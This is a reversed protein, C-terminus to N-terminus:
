SREYEKISRESLVIKKFYRSDHNIYRRPILLWMEYIENRNSEEVKQASSKFLGSKIPRLKKICDEASEYYRVKMLCYFPLWVCGLCMICDEIQERLIIWLRSLNQTNFHLGADFLHRWVQYTNALYPYEKKLASDEYNPFYLQSDSIFTINNFKKYDLYNLDLNSNTTIVKRTFDPIMLDKMLIMNTYDQLPVNSNHEQGYAVFSMLTDKGKGRKGCVVISLDKFMKKIKHTNIFRVRIFIISTIILFIFIIIKAIM